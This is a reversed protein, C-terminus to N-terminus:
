SVSSTLAGARTRDRDFHIKEQLSPIQIFVRRWVRWRFYLFTICCNSYHASTYPEFVDRPDIGICFLRRSSNLLALLPSSYPYPVANMMDFSIKYSVIFLNIFNNKLESRTLQSVIALITGRTLSHKVQITSIGNASPQQFASLTELFLLVDHRVLEYLQSWIMSNEMSSNIEMPHAEVRPTKAYDLLDRDM